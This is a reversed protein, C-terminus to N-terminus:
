LVDVREGDDELTSPLPLVVSLKNVTSEEVRAEESTRVSSDIRRKGTHAAPKRLGHRHDILM